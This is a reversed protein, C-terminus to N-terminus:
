AYGCRARGAGFRDDFAAEVEPGLHALSQGTLGKHFFFRDARVMGPIETTARSAVELSRLRDFSTRAVTQELRAADIPVGLFGLVRSFQGVPDAKLDEYRVTLVPFGPSVTWSELHEQWSGYGSRLWSADGGREAFGLAYERPEATAGTSLEAFNMGSLLVDRPDRVLYVAARTREILPHDEGRTFHTKIFLHDPFGPPRAHRGQVTRGAHAIWRHPLGHRKAKEMWWDLELSLRGLENLHQAAGFFYADLLFRVWTNGSRPYSAIWVIDRAPPGPEEPPAELRVETNGLRLVGEPAARSARYAELEDELRPFAAALREEFLAAAYRYLEVDLRNVGRLLAVAEPDAGAGLPAPPAAAYTLDSWGMTRGMLLLSEDLREALGFIYRERLNAKASELMAESVSGFPLRGEPRPNLWRVMPNDIEPRGAGAFDKLTWREGAATAHLYHSPSAVVLYYVAIATEVPDRLMTLYRAPRPLLADIGFPVYGSLLRVAGREAGPLAAFARAADPGGGFAFERLGALNRRMVQQALPLTAMPIVQLVIPAPAPVAVSM